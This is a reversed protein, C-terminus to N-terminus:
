ASCCRDGQVVASATDVAAPHDFVVDIPHTASVVGSYCFTIDAGEGLVIQNGSVGFTLMCMNMTLAITVTWRLGYGVVFMVSDRKAVGYAWTSATLTMHGVRFFTLAGTARDITGMTPDSSTFAVLLPSGLPVPQGNAMTTYVPLTYGQTDVARKASDGAAPHISLTALPSPLPSDQTVQIVVTDTLVIGQMTLSVVVQALSTVFHATM